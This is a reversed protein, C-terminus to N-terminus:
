VSTCRTTGIQPNCTRDAVHCMCNSFVSESNINDSFLLFPCGSERLAGSITDWLTRAPVSAVALGDSEYIEYATTFADGVLDTLPRVDAPDFLSWSEDAELRQM